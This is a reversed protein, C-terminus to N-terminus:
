RWCHLAPAREPGAERSAFVASVDNTCEGPWHLERILMLGIEGRGQARADEVAQTVDVSVTAPERFCTAHGVPFHELDVTKVASVTQCLNPATEATLTREEWGTEPVAYVRFLFGGDYAQTDTSQGHLALVAKTEAYKLWADINTAPFATSRFGAWQYTVGAPIMTPTVVADVQESLVAQKSSVDGVRAPNQGQRTELEAVLADQNFAALGRGVMVLPGRTLVQLGAEDALTSVQERVPLGRPLTFVQGNLRMEGQKTAAM